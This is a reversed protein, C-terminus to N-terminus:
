KTAWSRQDASVQMCGNYKGPIYDYSLAGTAGPESTCFAVTCYYKLIEFFSKGLIKNKAKGLNGSFNKSKKFFHMLVENQQPTSLLIFPNKFISLSYSEVSKLGEIFNNQTKRDGTNKILAIITEQVKADKAGPTNTRPIIIESLDAILDKNEDLYRFDPTKYLVYWEWGSYTAVVGGTLCFISLIANKRNM